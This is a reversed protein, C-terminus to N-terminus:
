RSATSPVRRVAKVVQAVGSAFVMLVLMTVTTTGYFTARGAVDLNNLFLYPLGNTVSGVPADNLPRIIFEIWVLYAVPLAVVWVAVRKLWTFAGLLFLADFVQLAPGLGHLFYEEYWPGAQGDAGYFLAPDEFYIKWYMLVVTLNLVVTVSAFVDRHATSWGMSLRLMFWASLTSATLAWITLFRFHGGVYDWNGTFLKYIFFTATLLFIVWRIARMVPTTQDM